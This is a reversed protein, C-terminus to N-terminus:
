RVMGLFGPASPHGLEARPGLEAERSKGQTISVSNERTRVAELTGIPRM